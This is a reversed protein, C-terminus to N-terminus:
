ETIHNLKKKKYEARRARAFCQEREPPDSLLAHLGGVCPAMSKCHVQHRLNRKNTRGDEYLPKSQNMRTLKLDLCMLNGMEYYYIFPSFPLRPTTSLSSGFGEVTLWAVCNFYACLLITTGLYLIFPLGSKHRTNKM